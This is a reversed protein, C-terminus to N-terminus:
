QGCSDVLGVLYRFVRRWGLNFGDCLLIQFARCLGWLVGKKVWLDEMRDFHGDLVLHFLKLLHDHLVFSGEIKFLYNRGLKVFRILLVADVSHAFMFTLRLLLKGLQADVADLIQILGGCGDVEIVNRVM